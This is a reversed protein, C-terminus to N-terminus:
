DSTTQDDVPQNNVRTPKTMWTNNVIDGPRLQASFSYDEFKFEQIEPKTALDLVTTMDTEKLRNPFYHILACLSLGAFVGSESNESSKLVLKLNFFKSMCGDSNCIALYISPLDKSDCIEIPSFEGIVKRWM